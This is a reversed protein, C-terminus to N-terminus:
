PKLGCIGSFHAPVRISGGGDSGIGGASCGSAIAAAEGGSSGGATRTLDWPNSTKGTLLNNSEWAMLFEPTNTNGLLMAGAARLRAGLPADQSAVYEKRLTSGAACVWGGVDINGKISLPIGHLPGVDEGRQIAAEASLAQLRAADPDLHAFSNLQGECEAIRELAADVVEVPSTKKSRISAGLRAISSHFLPSM